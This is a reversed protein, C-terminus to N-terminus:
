HDSILCGRNFPDKIQTHIVYMVQYKTCEELVKRSFAMMMM